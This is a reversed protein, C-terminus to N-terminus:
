LRVVADHIPRARPMSCMPWGTAGGSAQTRLHGPPGRVIQRVVRAHAPRLGAERRRREARRTWSSRTPPPPGGPRGGAPPARAAAISHARRRQFRRYDPRKQAPVEDKRVYKDPL